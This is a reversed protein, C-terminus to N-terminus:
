EIQVSGSSSANAKDSSFSIEPNASSLECLVIGSLDVHTISGCNKLTIGTNGYNNNADVKIQVHYTYNIGGGDQIKIIDSSNSSRWSTPEFQAKKNVLLQQGAVAVNMLASAILGALIIKKM